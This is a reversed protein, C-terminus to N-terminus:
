AAALEYFVLNLQLGQVDLRHIADAAGDDLDHETAVHLEVYRIGEQM